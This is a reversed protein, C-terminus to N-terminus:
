GARRYGKVRPKTLSMYSAQRHCSVESRGLAGAARRARGGRGDTWIERLKRQEATNWMRQGVPM